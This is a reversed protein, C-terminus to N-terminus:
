IISTTTGHRRTSYLQRTTFRSIIRGRKLLPLVDDKLFNVWVSAPSDKCIITTPPRARLSPSLKIICDIGSGSSAQTSLDVAITTTLLKYEYTFFVYALPPATELKVPSLFVSQLCYHLSCVIATYVGDCHLLCALLLTTSSLHRHPASCVIFHRSTTSICHLYVIVHLRLSPNYPSTESASAVEDDRIKAIDVITAVCFTGPQPPEQSPNRTRASEQNPNRVPATGSRSV